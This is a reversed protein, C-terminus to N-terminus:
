GRLQTEVEANFRYTLLSEEETTAQQARRTEQQQPRGEGGAENPAGSPNPSQAVPVGWLAQWPTYTSLRGNVLRSNKCAM